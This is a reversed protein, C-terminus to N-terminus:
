KLLDTYKNAKIIFAQAFSVLCLISINLTIVGDVKKKLMKTITNQLQVM